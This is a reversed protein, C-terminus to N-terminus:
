NQEGIAASQQPKAEHESSSSVRSPWWRRWWPQPRTSRHEPAKEPAETSIPEESQAAPAPRRMVLVQEGLLMELAVYEWGEAALRNVVQELQKARPLASSRATATNGAMYKAPFELDRYMQSMGETGATKAPSPQQAGPGPRAAQGEQGPEGEKAAERSAPAAPASGRRLGITLFRYEWTM